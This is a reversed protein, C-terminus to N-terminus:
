RVTMAAGTVVGRRRRRPQPQHATKALKLLLSLLRQKDRPPMLEWKPQIGRGKWTLSISDNGDGTSYYRVEMSIAPRRTEIEINM